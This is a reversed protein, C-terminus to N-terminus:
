LDNAGIAGSLIQLCEFLYYSGFILEANSIRDQPRADVRNNFCGGILMGAPRDSTENRTLYQTVLTHASHEAAQRYRQRDAAAPALEALRLLAACAISTAATDRPAGPIAPDNFDWYAVGDMPVNSLWWDASAMSQVLWPDQRGQAFAMAAFLMGWAQARGWVSSDSFGKHTFHRIVQGSKGDLETSQVISGDPRCHIELVRTTHLSACEAYRSEETHQAAWFLLPSAQLSDISSFASGTEGAEEADRGLPILGLASDFQRLLSEAAELALNTSENDGALVDGLAAGYYFGFGKFATELQARPRLRNSWTRALELVRPEGTMRYGLWFIGPFAGGTWDGDPTTTWKGTRWDAWHPFGQGALALASQEARGLVATAATRWSTSQPNNSNKM